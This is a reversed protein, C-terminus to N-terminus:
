ALFGDHTEGGAGGWDTGVEFQDTEMAFFSEIEGVADDETEIFVEAEGDIAGLAMASPEVFVEEGFDVDWFFVDIEEIALDMRGIDIEVATAVFFGDLM